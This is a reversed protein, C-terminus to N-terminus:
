MNNSDLRYLFPRWHQFPARRRSEGNAICAPQILTRTGGEKSYQSASIRRIDHGCLHQQFQGDSLDLRVRLAVRASPLRHVRWGHSPGRYRERWRRLEVTQVSNTLRQIANPPSGANAVPFAGIALTPQGLLSATLAAVARPVLGSDMRCRAIRRVSLAAIVAPGVNQNVISLLVLRRRAFPRVHRSVGSRYHRKFSADGVKSRQPRLGFFLRGLAGPVPSRMAFTDISINISARKWATSLSSFL